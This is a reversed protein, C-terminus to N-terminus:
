IFRVEATGGDPQRVLVAAGGAVQEELFAYARLARNVAGTKSHGPGCLAALAASGEPTLTVTVRECPKGADDM